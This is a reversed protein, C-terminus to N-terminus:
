TQFLCMKRNVLSSMGRLSETNDQTDFVRGNLCTDYTCSDIRWGYTGEARM